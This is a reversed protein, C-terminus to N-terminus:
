TILSASGASPTKDIPTTAFSYIFSARAEAFAAAGTAGLTRLSASGAPLPKDM